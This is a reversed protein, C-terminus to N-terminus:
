ISAATCVAMSPSTQWRPISPTAPRTTAQEQENETEELVTEEATENDLESAYAYSGCTQIMMTIILMMVGLRKIIKKM